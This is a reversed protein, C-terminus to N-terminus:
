AIRVAVLGTANNGSSNNPTAAKLVDGAITGLAQLVITTTSGLTVIANCSLAAFNNAVSAHYQQVSAYHVTGTSIRVCYNGATTTTRGATASAMVLWTGANLAISPGSYWQNANTLAVDAGLFASSSTLSAAPQSVPTWASGNWSLYQGSTAGSQQLQEVAHTHSAAAFGSDAQNKTYYRADGRDTTLYQPHDDDALGSLTGHDSTGNNGSNGSNKRTIHRDVIRRIGDQQQRNFQSM